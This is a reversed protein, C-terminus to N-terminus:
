SQNNDYVKEKIRLYPGVSWPYSGYVQPYQAFDICEASSEMVKGEKRCGELALLLREFCNQLDKHNQQMAGSEISTAKDSGIRDILKQIGVGLMAMASSDMHGEVAQLQWSFGGDTRQYTM